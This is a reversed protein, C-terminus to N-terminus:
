TYKIKKSFKISLREISIYVLWSLVWSMLIALLINLFVYQQGFETPAVFHLYWGGCLGHLLYLSYSIKGTLNLFKVTTPVFYILTFGIIAAILDELFYETALAIVAIGLTFMYEWKWGKEKIFFIGIGIIFYPSNIFVTDYDRTAIGIGILLTSALPITWNWRKYLGFILGIILYFQLEVELTPFVANLWDYNPFYDALFLINIAIQRFNVDHICGWVYDCLLTKIIQILIISLIFPPM